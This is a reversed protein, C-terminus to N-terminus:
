SCVQIALQKHFSPSAYDITEPLFTGVGEVVEGFVGAALVPELTGLVGIDMTGSPIALAVKRLTVADNSYSSKHNRM